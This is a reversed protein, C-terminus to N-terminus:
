GFAELIAGAIFVNSLILTIQFIKIDFLNTGNTRLLAPILSFDCLDGSASRAFAALPTLPLWAIPQMVDSLLDAQLRLLRGFSYLLWGM